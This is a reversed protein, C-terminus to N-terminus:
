PSSNFLCHDCAGTSIHNQQLLCLNKIQLAELSGFSGYKAWPARNAEIAAAIGADHPATIQAGHDWFVKYGNDQKPNHSATVEIGACAGFESVYAYVEETGALGIEM